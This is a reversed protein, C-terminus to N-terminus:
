NKTQSNTTQTRRENNGLRYCSQKILVEEAPISERQYM